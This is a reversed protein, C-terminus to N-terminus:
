GEGAFVLGETDDLKDAIRKTNKATEETADATRDGAVDGMRGLLGAHLFTGLVQAKVDELAKAVDEGPKKPVVKGAAKEWAERTKTAEGVAETWAIKAKVIDKASAGEKVLKEWAERKKVTEALAKKWEEWAKGVVGGVEAEPAEPKEPAVYEGLGERVGAITKRM